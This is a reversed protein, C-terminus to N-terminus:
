SAEHSIRMQKNNPYDTILRGTIEEPSWDDILKCQVYHV